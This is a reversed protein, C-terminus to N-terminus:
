FEPLIFTPCLSRSTSFDVVLDRCQAEVDQDESVTRGWGLGKSDLILNPGPVRTQILCGFQPYLALVESVKKGM